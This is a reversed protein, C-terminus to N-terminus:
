FYAFINSVAFPTAQMLAPIPDHKTGAIFLRFQHKYAFAWPGVLVRLSQREDAPGSLEEGLHNFPRGLFFADREFARIDVDAIHDLAPRRLVARRLRILHFDAPLKEEALEFGNPGFRDTGHTGSRSFGDESGFIADRSQTSFPQLPAINWQNDSVM